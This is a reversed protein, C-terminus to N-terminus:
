KNFLFICGLLFYSQKKEIFFGKIIITVKHTIIYYVPQSRFPMTIGIPARFNWSQKFSVLIKQLFFISASSANKCYVDCKIRILYTCCLSNNSFANIKCELEIILYKSGILQLLTEVYNIWISLHYIKWCKFCRLNKVLM